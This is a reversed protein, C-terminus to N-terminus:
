LMGKGRGRGRRRKKREQLSIKKCHFDKCIECSRCQPCGIRLTVWNRIRRRRRRRRTKKKNTNQQLPIKPLNKVIMLGTNHTHSLKCCDVVTQMEVWRQNKTKQAEVTTPSIPVLLQSAPQSAESSNCNQQSICVAWQSITICIYDPDGIQQKILKLNQLAKKGGFQLERLLSKM